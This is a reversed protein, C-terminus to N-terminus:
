PGITYVFIKPPAPAPVPVPSGWLHAAAALICICKGSENQEPIGDSLLGERGGSPPGRECIM